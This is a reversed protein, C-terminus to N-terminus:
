DNLLCNPQPDGVHPSQISFERTGWTPLLYLPLKGSQAALALNELAWNDVELRENETTCFCPARGSPVM